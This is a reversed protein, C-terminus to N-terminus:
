RGGVKLHHEEGNRRVVWVCEEGSAVLDQIAQRNLAKGELSGVKRLEDGVRAGVKDLASGPKVFLIVLRPPLQSRDWGIPLRKNPASRIPLHGESDVSLTLHNTIFDFCAPAALWVDLGVGGRNVGARFTVPLNTWAGTGAEMRPIMGELGAVQVGSLGISISTKGGEGKPNFTMPLDIGGTMGTDLTAQVLQNGLRLNM